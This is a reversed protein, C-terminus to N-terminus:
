AARMVAFFFLAPLIIFGVLSFCCTAYIFLIHLTGAIETDTSVTSLRLMVNIPQWLKLGHQVYRRTDVRSWRLCKSSRSSWGVGCDGSELQLASKCILCVTTTNESHETLGHNCTFYFM